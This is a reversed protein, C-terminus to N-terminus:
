RDCTVSDKTEIDADYFYCTTLSGSSTGVITGSSLRCGVLTGTADEWCQHAPADPTSVSNRSGGSTPYAADVTGSKGVSGLGGLLLVGAVVVPWAKTYFDFLGRKPNVLLRDFLPGVPVPPGGEDAAAQALAPAAPRARDLPLTGSRMAARVQRWPIGTWTHCTTCIMGHEWGLFLVPIWFM